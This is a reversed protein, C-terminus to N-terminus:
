NKLKKSIQAVNRDLFGGEFGHNGKIQWNWLSFEIGVAFAFGPFEYTTEICGFSFCLNSGVEFFKGNTKGYFRFASSALWYAGGWIEPSEDCFSQIWSRFSIKDVQLAAGGRLLHRDWFSGDNLWEVSNGYGVGFSFIKYNLGGNIESFVNRYLSDFLTFSSFFDVRYSDSGWEGFAAYKREDVKYRNEFVLGVAPASIRAPSKNWLTEDAFSPTYVAALVLVYLIVYFVNNYTIKRVYLM